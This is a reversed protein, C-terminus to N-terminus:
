NVDSGISHLYKIVETHGNASALAIADDGYKSKMNKDAGLSILLKVADLKGNSAAM